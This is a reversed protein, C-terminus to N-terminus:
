QAQKREVNKKWRNLGGKRSWEKREEAHRKATEKGGKSGNERMFAKIAEENDMTITNLASYCFGCM